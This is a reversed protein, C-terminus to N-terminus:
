VFRLVSIRTTALIKRVKPIHFFKIARRTSKFRQVYKVAKEREAEPSLMPQTQLDQFSRLNPIDFDSHFM